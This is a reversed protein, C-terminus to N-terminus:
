RKPLWRENGFCTQRYELYVVRQRVTIWGGCKADWDVIASHVPLAATLTQSGKPLANMQAAQRQKWAPDCSRDLHGHPQPNSAEKGRRRAGTALTPALSITALCFIHRRKM